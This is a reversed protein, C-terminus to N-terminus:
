LKKYMGALSNIILDRKVPHADRFMDRVAVNTKMKSALESTESLASSATDSDGDSSTLGGLLNSTDGASKLIDRLTENGSLLNHVTNKVLDAIPVNATLTLQKMVDTYYPVLEGNWTVSRTVTDLALNGTAIAKAQSALVERLNSVMTHIDLIGTLPFVNDGPKITIDKLTANGIVLDGSKVDLVITGIDLTLVSPNPLSANGILNTGDERAPVLGSDSISFGKFQNLVPSMIDKDMTVKSKLVGLYSNTVGRVSLPTEKEFVVNYVYEEWTTLNTLPTEVKSVGLTTNGKIVKGDIKAQGWANKAGADRVFLDLTIPEIRVPLAIKLDLASLLTLQIKDPRPNLVSANVLVLDSKNVVMQSIAPIAVLFFVPLFIALFIITVLLHLCWFRKWHRQFKESRKLKRTELSLGGASEVQALQAGDDDKSILPGRHIGLTYKANDSTLYAPTDTNKGM